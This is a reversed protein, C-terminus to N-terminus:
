PQKPTLPEDFTLISAQYEPIKSKFAAIAAELESGVVSTNTVSGIPEFNGNVFKEVEFTFNFAGGHGRGVNGGLTPQAGWRLITAVLFGLCEEDLRHTMFFSFEVGSPIEWRGHLQGASVSTGKKIKEAEKEATKVKAKAATKEADTGEIEAKKAVAKAEKVLEGADRRLQADILDESAIAEAETWGQKNLLKIIEPNSTYINKRVIGDTTLYFHGHSLADSFCLFGKNFVPDNFGFVKLVPINRHGDILEALTFEDPKREKKEKRKIRGGVMMTSLVKDGLQGELGECLMQTGLHRLKGRLTSAPIYPRGRENVDYETEDAVIQFPVTEIAEREASKKEYDTMQPLFAPNAGSPLRAGDHLSISVKTTSKLKATIRYNNM